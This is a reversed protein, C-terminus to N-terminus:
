QSDAKDFEVARWGKGTRKYIVKLSFTQEGGPSHGALYASRQEPSLWATLGGAVAGAPAPNFAARITVFVECTDESCSIRDVQLQRFALIETAESLAPCDPCETTPSPAPVIKTARVFVLCHKVIEKEQPQRDQEAKVEASPANSKDSPAVKSETTPKEQAQGAASNTNRDPGPTEDCSSAILSALCILAVGRINM